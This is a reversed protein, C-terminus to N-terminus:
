GEQVLRYGTFYNFHYTVM